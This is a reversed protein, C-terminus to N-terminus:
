DFYPQPPPMVREIKLTANSHTRHTIMKLAHVGLVLLGVVLLIALITLGLRMLTWDPPLWDRLAQLFGAEKRTGDTQGLPASEPQIGSLASEKAVLGVPTRPAEAVLVRPPAVRNAAASFLDLGRAVEDEVRAESGTPAALPAAEKEERNAVAADHVTEDATKEALDDAVPRRMVQPPRLGTYIEMFERILPESPLGLFDAYIKIFGRGYIPAAIRRYDERELDEVVQSLM